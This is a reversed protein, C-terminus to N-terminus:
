RYASRSRSTFRMSASESVSGSSRRGKAGRLMERRLWRHQPAVHQSTGRQLIEDQKIGPGHLKRGGRIDKDIPVKPPYLLSLLSFGTGLKETLAGRPTPEDM